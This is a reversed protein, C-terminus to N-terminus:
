PHAEFWAPVETPAAAIWQHSANPDIVVKTQKGEAILDSNYAEM